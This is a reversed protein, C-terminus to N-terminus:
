LSSRALLTCIEDILNQYKRVHETFNNVMIAFTLVQNNKTYIYGALTTVGKMNGTKAHVRNKVSIMRGQLHGDIGSTPLALVFINRIAANRYAYNLLSVLAQPSVSNHRSLGCGDVIKIKSFDIQTNKGLIGALAKAGNEWTGQQKFYVAGIKKYIANAFLNDSKKLMTKILVSLPASDHGIMAVLHKNPPVRAFMISGNLRINHQHLVETFTGVAYPRMDWAAMLFNWTKAGPKMCGSITYVNSTANGVATFPCDAYPANSTITNNIFELFGYGKFNNITLPQALRSASISFPFCNHDINIASVSAAYCLNRENDMWGPGFEEHDFVSDDLYINGNITNVGLQMLVSIMGSIDRRTLAPDGDFYFYLDSNLVGRASISQPAALFLTKFTYNPGLHTLAAVATFTKLASAPALLQTANRQYIIKGSNLSQVLVGVTIRDGYKSIIKDIKQNLNANNTYNTKTYNTSTRNGATITSPPSAALSNSSILFLSILFAAAITAVAARHYFNLFFNLRSNQSNITM